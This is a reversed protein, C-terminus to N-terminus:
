YVTITGYSRTKYAKMPKDWYTVPTKSTGLLIDNLRKFADRQAYSFTLCGYSISGVHLRFNGRKIGTDDIEAFDNYTGDPQKRRLWYWGRGKFDDGISYEGAPIPGSGSVLECSTQDKCNGAGSFIGEEFVHRNYQTEFYGIPQNIDTPNPNQVYGYKPPTDNNYVVLKKKQRDYYASVDLGFPDIFSLPNNWVYGYLNVDGGAFGIPDESTFRGIQPDYFRARYYVLKTEEDAERGTYRYRTPYTQATVNGNFTERGFSDYVVKDDSSVTGSSDSLGVTSGLHDTLFYKSTSGTTIKLKDDIGLGNVYNTTSTTGDSKYVRDQLVDM